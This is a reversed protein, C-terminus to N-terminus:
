YMRSDAMANWFCQCLKYLLAYLTYSFIIPINDKAVYSRKGASIERPLERFHNAHLICELGMCSHLFYTDCHPVFLIFFALVTEFLGALAMIRCLLTDLGLRLSLSEPLREFSSLQPHNSHQPDSDANVQATGVTAAPAIRHQLPRGSTGV